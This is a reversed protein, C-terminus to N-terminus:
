GGVKKWRLSKKSLIEGVRELNDLHLEIFQPSSDKKYSGGVALKKKLFSALEQNWMKNIPLGRIEIVTRGKGATLRRLQLIISTEDVSLNATDSQSNSLNKHKRLDGQEDSWVLIADKEKIKTM